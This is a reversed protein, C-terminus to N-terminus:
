VHYGADNCRRNSPYQRKLEEKMARFILRNKEQEAAKSPHFEDVVKLTQVHNIGAGFYSCPCNLPM